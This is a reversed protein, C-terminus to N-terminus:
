ALVIRDRGEKKAQYLAADAAEILVAGATGNHPFSAV